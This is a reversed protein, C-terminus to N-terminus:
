LLAVGVRLRMGYKRSIGGGEFHKQLNFGMFVARSIEGCPLPDGPIYTHARANYTSVFYAEFDLWGRITAAGFQAKFYFRAAALNRPFVTNISLRPGGCRM